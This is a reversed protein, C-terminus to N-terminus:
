QPARLHASRAKHLLDMPDGRSRPVVWLAWWTMRDTWSRDLTASLFPASGGIIVYAIPRSWECLLVRSGRGTEPRQGPMASARITM